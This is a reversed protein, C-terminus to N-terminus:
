EYKERYAKVVRQAILNFVLTILFLGFGLAFASLTKPSDFETDGTLLDVIQVTITTVDQFPDATIQARQGAAMVVIMTEGIARSVALLLAAVVGPLAAPLIVQKVTESKTAGLAFAGDRLTQPTANIVDDSLSSVFPIIMVGMVLGAALASTPQADIIPGEVWPMLAMLADNLWDGFARVAPAVTLLAFFGYVVTPVGALVELIPKVTRRTRPGAYESLYIAAFLGVPAAVIMAIVTIMISGYILPVAGFAGSAGIQDPRINTQASWKLGFLFEMPSVEGFFRITEFVLSLVIGITTLIAVGSCAMLFLKLAGEVRNRARRDKRVRALGLALGILSLLGAALSAWLKIAGRQVSIAHALERVPGALAGEPAITSSGSALARAADIQVTQEFPPLASLAAPMQATALRDALTNGALAYIFLVALSPGLAWLAVLYGHYNPRSHLARANAGALAVAKRRGLFFAASAVALLAALLGLALRSQAIQEFM